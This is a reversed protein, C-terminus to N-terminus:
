KAPNEPATPPPTRGPFLEEILHRDLEDLEKRVELFPAQDDATLSPVMADIRRLSEQLSIQLQKFGSPHKEADIKKDELAKTCAEIQDRYTRLLALGDSVRDMDVDKRIDQFEAEGLDFMIKAKQVPNPEHDFRARLDSTRGQALSPVALAAWLLAAACSGAIAHL